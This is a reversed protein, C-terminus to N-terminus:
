AEVLSGLGLHHRPAPRGDRAPAPRPSGSPCTPCGARGGNDEGSAIGQGLRRSSPGRHGIGIARCEIKEPYRDHACMHVRRARGLLFRRIGRETAAPTAEAGRDM